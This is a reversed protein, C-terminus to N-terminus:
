PKRKQGTTRKYERYDIRRNIVWTALKKNENGCDCPIKFHGHKQKFELLVKFIDDWRSDDCNGVLGASELRLSFSTNNSQNNRHNNSDDEVKVDEDITSSFRQPNSLINSM